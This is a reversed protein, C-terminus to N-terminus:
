VIKGLSSENIVHQDIPTQFITDQYVKKRFAKSFLVAHIHKCAIHTFTNDPCKCTWKQNVDVITSDYKAVVMYWKSSDSQSRVKYTMKNLRQISVDPNGKLGIERAMQLGKLERKNADNHPIPKNQM